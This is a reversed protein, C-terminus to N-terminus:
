PHAFYLTLQGKDWNAGYFGIRVLQVAERNSVERIMPEAIAQHISGDPMTIQVQVHPESVWQIIPYKETHDRTVRDATENLQVTCFNMLRVNEGHYKQWDRQEIYVMKDVPIERQGKEPFEPHRPALVSNLNTIHGLSIPKPNMVVFYRNASSDIIKRNEAYLIEAPLNVDNMSLGMKVIFARIADPHIGRKRLAQLSWTQPDDWGKMKGQEIARRAASKSLKAEKIRLMGYHIFEPANWGMKQWIDKEMLDEIILDKGRLIHTVGLLHDDIAWSFELLPWVRYKNGVRPHSRESIRLLVRDRFAPNPHQMDTKLRVVAEEERFVGDLMGKWRTLNEEISLNRCNCTVGSARNTSMITRPCNCVYAHNKTILCQAYQYFLKLRDSKYIPDSHEVGLWKLGELILTYAEPIVYKATSGITDDMVLLLKGQYRKVYEDNLLVMRANGIHLPGSPYPALRMVVKQGEARPLAPLGQPIEKKEFTINLAQIQAQQKEYGWSNIENITSQIQPILEKICSRLLPNEAIMKGLVAKFEAHGDHQSANILVHKVITQDM